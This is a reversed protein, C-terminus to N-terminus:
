KNKLAVRKMGLYEYLSPDVAIDNGGRLNKIVNFDHDKFFPDNKFLANLNTGDFYIKGVYHKCVYQKQWGKQEVLYNMLMNFFDAYGVCNENFQLPRGPIEGTAGFSFNLHEKTLDLMSNVAEDIQMDGSERICSDVEKKLTLNGLPKSKREKIIAYTLSSDPTETEKEETKSISDTTKKEESPSSCSVLSLLFLFIFILPKM